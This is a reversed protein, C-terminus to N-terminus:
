YLPQTPDLYFGEVAVGRRGVTDGAHWREALHDLQAACGVSRSDSQPSAQHLSRNIENFPEAHNTSLECFVDSANPTECVAKQHLPTSLLRSFSNAPPYLTFIDRCSSLTFYLALFATLLNVFLFSLQKGPPM